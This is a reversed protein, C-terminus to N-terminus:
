TAAAALSKKKAGYASRLAKREDAGINAGAVDGGIADLASFDAAAEIRALLADVTSATQPEDIVEGDATIHPSTATVAVQRPTPRREETTERLEDPDYLGMLLDPYVQRALFSKARAVCMRGPWKEWNSREKVLGAKKAEDITFSMRQIPDGVRKTEVVAHVDDSEVVRFYECVDKRSLCVAAMGDASLAPRGEIVHFARLAQTYSLGLDKGSMAIMLAAEPSKAGYFGSKAATAAFRELEQMNTPGIDHSEHRALATSPMHTDITHTTGNTSM